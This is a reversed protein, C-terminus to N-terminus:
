GPGVDQYGLPEEMQQGPAAKAEPIKMAERISTQKATLRSLDAFDWVSAERERHPQAVPGLPLVPLGLCPSNKIWSKSEEVSEKNSEEMVAGESDGLDRRASIALLSAAVLDGGDFGVILGRRQRAEDILKKDRVWEAIATTRGKKSMGHWIEPWIHPPRNTTQLRTMRGDIVDYGHPTKWLKHYRTEGFSAM